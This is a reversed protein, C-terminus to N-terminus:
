ARIEQKREEYKAILKGTMMGSIFGMVVGFVGYLATGHPLSGIEIYLRGVITVGVFFVVLVELLKINM